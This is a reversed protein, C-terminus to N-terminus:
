GYSIAPKHKKVHRAADPLVRGCKGVNRGREM